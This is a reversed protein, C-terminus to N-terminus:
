SIHFIDISESASTIEDSQQTSAKSESFCLFVVILYMMTIVKWMNSFLILSVWLILYVTNALKCQIVLCIVVNHVIKANNQSFM